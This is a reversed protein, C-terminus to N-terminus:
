PPFNVAEGPLPQRIDYPGLTVGNPCVIRIESLLEERNLRAAFGLSQLTGVVTDGNLVQCNMDLRVPFRVTVPRRLLNINLMDVTAGPALEIEEVHTIAYDNSVQIVHPGPAVEIVHPSGGARLRGVSNGDV